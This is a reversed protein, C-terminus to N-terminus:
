GLPTAAPAGNRLLTALWVVVRTKAQAFHHDSPQEVIWDGATLTGSQGARIKRVVRPNQDALGRMVTVSGTKVSYRLAGTAIYSVQTGEHYHLPLKVGAPIVVRSLGLTRGRAGLPNKFAGLLERKATPASSMAQVAIAGAGAGVMFVAITCAVVILRRSKLL